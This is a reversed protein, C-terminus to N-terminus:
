RAWLRPIFSNRSEADKLSVPASFRVPKGNRTGTVIVEGHQDQGDPLYRGLIIQQSGEALNPLEPPYVMATRLGKFDVKLDRLPPQAIEKLLDLAVAQPGREGRIRRVSGGGLSAMARLVGPEFTNGV